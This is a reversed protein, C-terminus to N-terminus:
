EPPSVEVQETTLVVVARRLHLLVFFLDLFLFKFNQGRSRASLADISQHWLVLEAIGDEVARVHEFLLHYGVQLACVLQVGLDVVDFKLVLKQLSLQVLGMSGLILCAVIKRWCLLTSHLGLGLLLQDGKFTLGSM